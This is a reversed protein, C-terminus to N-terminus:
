QLAFIGQDKNLRILGQIESALNISPVQGSNPKSKKKTEDTGFIVRAASYKSDAGSPKPRKRLASEEEGSDDILKGDKDKYLKTCM